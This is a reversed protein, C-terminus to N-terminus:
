EDERCDYVLTEPDFIWEMIEKKKALAEEYTKYKKSIRFWEKQNHGLHMTLISVYFIDTIYSNCNEDYPTLIRISDIQDITIFRDINKYESIVFTKLTAILGLNM